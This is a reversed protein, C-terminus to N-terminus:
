QGRRRMILTASALALSGLIMGCCCLALSWRIADTGFVPALADNFMGAVSPGFGIGVLSTGLGASAVTMARLSPPALGLLAASTPPLWVTLLINTLLLLGLATTGDSAFIFALACPLTLLAGTAAVATYASLRGGAIIDAIRGSATNGIILGVATSLGVWLGVQLTSMGFSRIFLTPVWGLLAYGTFSCSMGAFILLSVAPTRRLFRFFEGYTPKVRGTRVPPDFTGRVPDRVTFVIIIALLLGPAGFLLFAVRWNFATVMWGGLFLGLAIGIASVSYLLGIVTGRKNPPYLDAILSQVAPSAGAEGSAVFVRALILQVYSGALGCAITGASWTALCASVLGVRSRRAALQALPIAAIIYFIAFTIGSVLGMETDTAGIDRKVPELLIALAQRDLLNLLSVLCLMAFAYRRRAPTWWSLDPVPTHDAGSTRLSELLAEKYSSRRPADLM